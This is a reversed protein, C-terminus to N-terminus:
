TRSAFSTTRATRTTSSAAPWRRSVGFIAFFATDVAGGNINMGTGDARTFHAAGLDRGMAEDSACSAARVGPIRRAVDQFAMQACPARLTFVQDGPM